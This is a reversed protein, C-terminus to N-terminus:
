IPLDQNLAENEAGEDNEDEGTLSYKSLKRELEEKWTNTSIQKQWKLPSESKPVGPEAANKACEQIISAVNHLNHFHSKEGELKSIMEEVKDKMVNM